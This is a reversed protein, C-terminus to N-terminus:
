ILIVTSFIVMLMSLVHLSGRQETLFGTSTFTTVPNKQLESERFRALYWGGCMVPMPLAIVRPM